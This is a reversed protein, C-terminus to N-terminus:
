SKLNVILLPTEGYKLFQSGGGRRGADTAVDVSVFAFFFLLSAVWCVVRTKRCSLETYVNFFFLRRLECCVCVDVVWSVFLWRWELGERPLVCSVKLLIFLHTCSSQEVIAVTDYTKFRKAQRLFIGFLLDAIKLAAVPHVTM